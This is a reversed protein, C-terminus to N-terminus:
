RTTRQIITVEPMINQALPIYDVFFLEDNYTLQYREKIYDLSPPYHGETAYTHIISRRLASELADYQQTLSNAQMNNISQLFLTIVVVFVLLPLILRTLISQDKRTKTFRNM